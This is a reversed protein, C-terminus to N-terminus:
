SPSPAPPSAATCKSPDPELEVFVDEPSLKYAGGTGMSIFEFVGWLVLGAWFWGSLDKNVPMHASEYCDKEFKVFYDQNRKLEIAAPTTAKVAGAYFTAGEPKSNFRVTQKSGNIMAACGVMNTAFLGLLSVAILRNAIAGM